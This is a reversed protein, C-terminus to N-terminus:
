SQKGTYNEQNLKFPYDTLGRKVKEEHLLAWVAVRSRGIKKGIETQTYNAEALEWAQLQLPKRKSM